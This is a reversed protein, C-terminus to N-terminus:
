NASFTPRVFVPVKIVLVKCRVSQDEGALQKMIRLCQKRVALNFALFERVGAPRRLEYERVRETLEGRLKRLLSADRELEKVRGEIFSLTELLVADTRNRPWIGPRRWKWDIGM